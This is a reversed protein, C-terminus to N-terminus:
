PHQQRQHKQDDGLGGVDGNRHQQALRDVAEAHRIGAEHHHRKRHEDGVTQRPDHREAEALQAVREEGLDSLVRNPPDRESGEAVQVGQRQAEVQITLGARKAAGDVTAHLADFEQQEEHQERNQRCQDFDAQHGADEPEHEIPAEGGHGEDHDQTEDSKGERDGLPADAQAPGHVRGVVVGAGLDDVAQDVVLGDLIEAVLLMLGLTEVAGHAVVLAGRDLATGAQRKQIGALGRDHREADRRDHDHGGLADGRAGHGQAVEDHDVSIENM